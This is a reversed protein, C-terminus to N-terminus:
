LLLLLGLGFGLLGLIASGLGSNQPESPMSLDKEFDCKLCHYVTPKYEVISHVGCKPCQVSSPTLTSVTM